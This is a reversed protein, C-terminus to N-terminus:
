EYKKKEQSSLIEFSKNRQYQAQICKCKDVWDFHCVTKSQTNKM